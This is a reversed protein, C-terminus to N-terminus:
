TIEGKAFAAILSSSDEVLFTTWEASLRRQGAAFVAPHLRHRGQASDLMAWGLSMMPCFPAVLPSGYSGELALKGALLSVDFPMPPRKLMSNVTNQNKQVSEYISVAGSHDNVLAYAYAAYMALTIDAPQGKVLQPGFDAPDKGALWRLKGTNAFAAAIAQKRSSDQVELRTGDPQFHTDTGQQFSISQVLGETVHVTGVYGAMVPLVVMTGADFIVIISYSAAVHDIPNLYIATGEPNEEIFSVLDKPYRHIAQVKAGIIHYGTMLSAGVRLRAGSIYSTVREMLGAQVLLADMSHHDGWQAVSKSLQQLAQSAQLLAQAQQELDQEPLQASVTAAYKLGFPLHKLSPDNQNSLYSEVRGQQRTLRRKVATGGAIEALEGHSNIPSTHADVIIIVNPIDLYAANRITDVLSIAQVNHSDSGSLMLYQNNASKDFSRGSFYFFLLDLSGADVLQAAAYQVDQITISCHNEDTLLRTEVSGGFVQRTQLWEAFRRAAQAAGTLGNLIGPRDLGVALLGVRQAHM